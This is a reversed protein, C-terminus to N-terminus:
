YWENSMYANEKCISCYFVLSNKKYLVNKYVFPVSLIITAQSLNDM